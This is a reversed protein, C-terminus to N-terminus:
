ERKKKSLDLIFWTNTVVFCTGTDKLKLSIKQYYPTTAYLLHRKFFLAPWTFIIQRL